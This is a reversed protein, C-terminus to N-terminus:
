NWKYILDQRLETICVRERHEYKNAYMPGGVEREGPWMFSRKLLYAVASYQDAELYVRARLNQSHFKGHKSIAWHTVIFTLLNAEESARNKLVVLWVSGGKAEFVPFMRWNIKSAKFVASSLKTLQRCLFWLGSEELYQIM